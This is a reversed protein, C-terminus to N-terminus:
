LEHRVLLQFRNKNVINTRLYLRNWGYQKILVPVSTLTEACNLLVTVTM